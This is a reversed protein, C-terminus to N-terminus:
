LNKTSLYAKMESVALPKKKQEAAIFEIHKKIERLFAADSKHSDIAEHFEIHEEIRQLMSKM